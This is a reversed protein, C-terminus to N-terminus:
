SWRNRLALLGGLALGAAFGGYVLVLSTKSLRHEFGPTFRQPVLKLDVVAAVAAVAAADTLANVADPRAHQGRLWRYIGAWFLSALYHTVAGSGTYRWSAADRQLASVPWIWHSVANVPAAASGADTRGRALLVVGSLVGALTGQLVGQEMVKRLDM